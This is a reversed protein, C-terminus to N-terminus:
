SAVFMKASLSNLTGGKHIYLASGDPWCHIAECRTVYWPEGEEVEIMFPHFPKCDLYKRIESEFVEPTM